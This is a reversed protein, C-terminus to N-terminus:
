NPKRGSHGKFTRTPSKADPTVVSVGSAGTLRMLVKETTALEALEAENSAITAALRSNEDTLERRRIEILNM